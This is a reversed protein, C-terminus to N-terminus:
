RPPRNQWLDPRRRAVVDVVTIAGAIAHARASMMTDLAESRGNRSRDETAQM